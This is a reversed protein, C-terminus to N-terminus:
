VAPLSQRAGCHMLSYYRNWVAGAAAAYYEALNERGAAAAAAAISEFHITGDSVLRFGRRSEHNTRKRLRNFNRNFVIEFVRTKKIPNHSQFRSVVGNLITFNPTAMSARHSSEATGFRHRKVMMSLDDLNVEMILNTAARKSIPRVQSWPLIDFVAMVHKQAATSVQFLTRHLCDDGNYCKVTLLGPCRAPNTTITDARL